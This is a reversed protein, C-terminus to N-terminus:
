IKINKYKNNKLKSIFNHTNNTTKIVKWKYEDIDQKNHILIKVQLLIM